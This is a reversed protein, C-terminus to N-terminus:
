PRDDTVSNLLRTQDIKGLETRPLAHLRLWQKPRAFSPLTEALTRLAAEPASGVYIAVVREGWHADPVGIVAVEVVDPHSAILREAAGPDVNEGGSIIVRDSRGYVQLSGDDDIHGLDSTRFTGQVEPEGVYGLMVTPGTVRIREQDISLDIGPLARLPGGPDLATAVQSTTETMGYTPFISLGADAGARALGPDVPGGGLLVKLSSQYSDSRRQLIRFLQTPVLSAWSVQGLWAGVKGPDNEMVVAGGALLSRYIISLGGVHQLPLVCLWRDGPGHGLHTASASAAAEWNAESLRVGKPSGSSGSTFLITHSPRVESAALTALDAADPRDPGAVVMTAGTASVALLEVVSDVDLRPQVVVQTGTRDGLSRRRAEVLDVMQAYSVTDSRTVLFERGPDESATEGLWDVM